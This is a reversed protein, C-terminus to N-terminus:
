QDWELNDRLVEEDDDFIVRLEDGVGDIDAAGGGGTDGDGTEDYPEEDERAVSQPDDGNAFVFEADDPDAARRGDEVM